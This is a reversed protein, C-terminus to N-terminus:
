IKKMMYNAKKDNKGNNDYLFKINGSGGEDKLKIPYLITLNNKLFLTANINGKKNPKFIIPRISFKKHPLFQYVKEQIDNPIFFSQTNKIININSYVSLNM